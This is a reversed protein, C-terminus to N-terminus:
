SKVEFDGGLIQSLIILYEKMKVKNVSDASENGGLALVPAFSYCEDPALGPGLRKQVKAFLEERFAESTLEPDCLFLNFFDTIDEGLDALDGYQVDLFYVKKGSWLFLDAFATRAFVVPKNPPEIWDQIDEEFNDPNVIWFIGNGYGSFGRQEWFQILEPPLLPIYKTIVSSGPAEIHVQDPYLKVFEEFVM